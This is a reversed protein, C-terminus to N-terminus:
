AVLRRVTAVIRQRVDKESPVKLHDCKATLKEYQGKWNKEFTVVGKGKEPDRGNEVIGSTAWWEDVRAVNRGIVTRPALTCDMAALYAVQVGHKNLTDAVQAAAFTGMSHGPSHGQQHHLLGRASGDAYRLARGITVSATM